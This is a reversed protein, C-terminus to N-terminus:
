IYELIKVSLKKDVIIDLTNLSQNSGNLYDSLISDVTNDLAQKDMTIVIGQASLKDLRSIVKGKAIGKVDVFKYM